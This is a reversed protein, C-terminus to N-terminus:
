GARKRGGARSAAPKAAPRDAGSSGRKPATPKSAASAPSTKAGSKAGSKAATKAAPKAASKSASTKSDSTKSATSKSATSSSAAAKSAPKTEKAAKSGRKGGPAPAGAGDDSALSRRLADFLDVVNSPRKQPKPKAPTRGEARARVLEALAAEYRDEFGDPDFSATKKDIIHRALDIMEEDVTVEGIGGMVEEPRRVTAAYRLTTMLLGNELPEIVVPRERRYLVIRAIGAMGKAAMADRIVAFAEVSVKDAPTVYYPTDLYIQEISNKEVFSDIALTHSSEIQLAEIEADDILVFEDDGIEFGKAEDETEVPEGTVTDVYQRRVPNGTARNITRFSIKESNSTANSLEVACSVLSLKLYGKWVPRPAM